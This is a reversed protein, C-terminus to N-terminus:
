SRFKSCSVLWALNFRFRLRSMWFNLELTITVEFEFPEFCVGSLKQLCILPSMQGGVKFSWFLLSHMKILDSEIISGNIGYLDSPM